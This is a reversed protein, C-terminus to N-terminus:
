KVRQMLGESIHLQHTTITDPTVHAVLSDESHAMDTGHTTITDPTVHAVVAIRATHWTLAM